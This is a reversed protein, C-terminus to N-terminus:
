LNRPANGYSRIPRSAFMMNLTFGPRHDEGLRFAENMWATKWSGGSRREGRGDNCNCYVPYVVCRLPSFFSYLMPSDLSVLFSSFFLFLFSFSFEISMGCRVSVGVGKGFQQKDMELVRIAWRAHSRGLIGANVRDIPHPDPRRSARISCLWGLRWIM